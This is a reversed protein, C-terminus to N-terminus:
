HIKINIFNLARIRGIKRMYLVNQIRYLALVSQCFRSKISNKLHKCTRLIAFMRESCKNTKM